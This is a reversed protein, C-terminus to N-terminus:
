SQKRLDDSDTCCQGTLFAFSDPLAQCPLLINESIHIGVCLPLCICTRCLHRWGSDQEAVVVQTIAVAEILTHAIGELHSLM